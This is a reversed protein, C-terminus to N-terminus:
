SSGDFEEDSVLAVPEDKRIIASSVDKEVMTGHVVCTQCAM